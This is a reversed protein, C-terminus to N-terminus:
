TECFPTGNSAAMALARAQMAGDPPPDFTDPDPEVQRSSQRPAPATLPPSAAASAPPASGGTREKQVVPVLLEFEGNRLMQRVCELVKLDSLLSVHRGVSTEYLLRRLLSM